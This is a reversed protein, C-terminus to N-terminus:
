SVRLKDPLIQKSRIIRVIPLDRSNALLYCFNRRLIDMFMAESVIIKSPTRLYRIDSLSLLSSYKLSLMQVIGMAIVSILVLM